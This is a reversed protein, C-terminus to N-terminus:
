MTMDFQVIHLNRHMLFLYKILGIKDVLLELNNFYKLAVKFQYTEQIRHQGIM